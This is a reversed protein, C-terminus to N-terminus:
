SKHAAEITGRYGRTNGEELGRGVVIGDAGHQFALTADHRTKIGGGILLYREFVGSIKLILDLSVKKGSGDLYLIDFACRSAANLLDTEATRPNLVKGVASDKNTVVYGLKILLGNRNLEKNEPKALWNVPWAAATQNLSNLPYYIILGSLTRQTLMRRIESNVQSPHSPAFYVPKKVKASIQRGTEAANQSTVGITGAVIVAGTGNELIVELTKESLAGAPDIQTFHTCARFRKVAVPSM